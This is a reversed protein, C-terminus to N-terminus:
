GGNRRVIESALEFFQGVVSRMVEPDLREGLGTSGVLDAFLATVHRREEVGVRGLLSAGCNACFRADAANERGCSPCTSM